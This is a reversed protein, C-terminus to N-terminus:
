LLHEGRRVVEAELLRCSDAVLQLLKPRVEVRDPGSRLKMLRWRQIASQKARPAVQKRMPGNGPYTWSTPSDASPTVNKAPETSKVAPPNRCLQNAHGWRWVGSPPLAAHHDASTWDAPVSKKLM